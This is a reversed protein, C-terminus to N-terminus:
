MCTPVFNEPVMIAKDFGYNRFKHPLLVGKIESWQGDNNRQSIQDEDRILAIVSGAYNLLIPGWTNARKLDPQQSWTGSIPNYLEVSNASGGDIGVALILADKDEGVLTWGDLRLGNVQDGTM